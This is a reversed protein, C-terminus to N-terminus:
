TGSVSKSRYRVWWYVLATASYGLNGSISKSPYRGVLIYWRLGELRPEGLGNPATAFGGIYWRLGVLRHNGFSIHLPLSGVLTGADNPTRGRHQTNHETNQTGATHETNEGHATCQTHKSHTGYARPIQHTSHANATHTQQATHQTHTRSHMLTVCVRM